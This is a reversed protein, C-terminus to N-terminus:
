RERSDLLITVPGDNVLTVLMHARFVGTAVRAGHAAVMGAFREFAPGAAAAVMAGDFSPRRGKRADGAVTFNPVLMVSGGAELVSRNMKGAEDDFVRLGAVKAAMWELDADADAATLGALVLLGHGIASREVGDVVVSASSVRQVVAKMGRNNSAVRM